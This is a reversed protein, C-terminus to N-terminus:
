FNMAFIEIKMYQSKLYKLTAVSQWSPEVVVWALGNGNFSFAAILAANVRKERRMLYVSHGLINSTLCCNFLNSPISLNRDRARDLVICTNFVASVDFDSM